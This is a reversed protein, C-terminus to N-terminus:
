REVPERTLPQRCEGAEVKGAISRRLLVPCTPHDPNIIDLVTDIGEAWRCVSRFLSLWHLTFDSSLPGKKANPSTLPVGPCFRRVPRSGVTGERCARRRGDRRPRDESSRPRAAGRTSPEHSLSDRRGRAGVASPPAISARRRPVGRPHCRARHHGPEDRQTEGTTWRPWPEVPLSWSRPRRQCALWPRSAVSAPPREGRAPREASADPAGVRNRPDHPGM